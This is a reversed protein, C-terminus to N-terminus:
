KKDYSPFGLQNDQRSDKTVYSTALGPISNGLADNYRGYVSPAALQDSCKNEMMPSVASSPGNPCFIKSGESNMPAIERLQAKLAGANSYKIENKDKRAEWDAERNEFAKYSASAEEPLSGVGAVAVLSSFGLLLAKRRDFLAGDGDNDGNNNNGNNSSAAYLPSSSCIAAATKSNSSPSCFGDVNQISALGAFTVFYYFCIAQYLLTM